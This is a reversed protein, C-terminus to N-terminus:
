VIREGTEGDRIRMSQAVESVFIKGDGANGTQATDLITEVIRDVDKDSVVMELLVQHTLEHPTGEKPKGWGETDWVTLGPPDPLEEVADIVQDKMAPRVYAKIEQM